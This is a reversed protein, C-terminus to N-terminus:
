RFANSLSQTRIFMIKNISNSDANAVAANNRQTKERNRQWCSLEYVAAILKIFNQMFM